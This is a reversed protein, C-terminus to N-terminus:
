KLHLGIDIREDNEVHVTVEAGGQLHIGARPKYCKLDATVLYDAKGAPVRQAFEGSHDSYLEWHAKKAEARIKVRVGYLPRGDPSWVTGFILAYPEEGHPHNADGFGFSLSAFGAVIIIILIKCSNGPFSSERVPLRKRTIATKRRKKM